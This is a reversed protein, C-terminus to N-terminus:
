IRVGVGHLLYNGTKGNYLDPCYPMPSKFKGLTESLTLVSVSAQCSSKLTRARFPQVINYILSTLISSPFIPHPLHCWLNM